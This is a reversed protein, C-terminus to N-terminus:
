KVQICMQTNQNKFGIPNSNLCLKNYENNGFALVRGEKTLIFSCDPGAFVNKFTYNFKFKIETPECRDLEDGHGLRGYEGLGWTFIKNSDTLVIVHSDGCALKSIKFNNENFFTLKTPSYLSNTEDLVNEEEEEDSNKMGLCGYYNSGFVYLDGSESVCCTTENTIAVQVISIGSLAEVRKPIRTFGFNKGHGLKAISSLSNMGGASSVGWTYLEKEVTIM